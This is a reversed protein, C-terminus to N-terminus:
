TSRITLTFTSPCLPFLLSPSRSTSRSTACTCASLPIHARGHPSCGGLDLYSSASFLPDYLFKSCLFRSATVCLLLVVEESNWCRRMTLRTSRRHRAPTQLCALPRHTALCSLPTFPFLKVPHFSEITISALGPPAIFALARALRRLCTTPPM